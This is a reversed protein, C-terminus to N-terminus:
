SSLLMQLSGSNPTQRGQREKGMLLEEKSGQAVCPLLSLQCCYARGGRSSKSM